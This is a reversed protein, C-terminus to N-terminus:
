DLLMMIAVLLPLVSATVAAYTIAAPPPVRRFRYVLPTLLLCVVGTVAAIFLMLGPFPSRADSAVNWGGTVIVSLGGVIEAGLTAIITLMWAVTATESHRDETPPSAKGARPQQKPKKKRKKKASVSSATNLFPFLGFLCAHESPSMM